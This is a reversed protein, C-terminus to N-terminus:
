LYIQEGLTETLESSIDDRHHQAGTTISPPEAPAGPVRPSTSLTRSTVILELAHFVHGIM